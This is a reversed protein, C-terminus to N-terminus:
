NLKNNNSSTKKYTGIDIVKGQDPDYAKVNVETAGNMDAENLIDPLIKSLEELSYDLYSNDEELYTNKHAILEQPDNFVMAACNPFHTKMIGSFTENSMATKFEEYILDINTYETINENLIKEIKDIFELNYIDHNLTFRCYFNGNLGNKLRTCGVLTGIFQEKTINELYDSANITRLVPFIEDVNILDSFAIIYVFGDKLNTSYIYTYELVGIDKLLNYATEVASKNRFGIYSLDGLFGADDIFTVNSNLWNEFSM